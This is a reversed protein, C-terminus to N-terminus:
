LYRYLNASRGGVPSPRIAWSAAPQESRKSDIFLARRPGSGLDANHRLEWGITTASHGDDFGPLVRTNEPLEFLTDVISDYLQGADSDPRNCPGARGALLTHGTFLLDRWRFCMSCPSHGPTDIAGFCEEGMYICEGDCVVRTRGDTKVQSSAGWVAGTEDCLLPAASLHSEHAHTEIVWNLRLDLHDIVDLYDSELEFHPDLLAARRTVPDAFLYSLQMDSARFQRFIM